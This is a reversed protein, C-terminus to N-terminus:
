IDAAGTGSQGSPTKSRGGSVRVRSESPIGGGMWLVVAVRGWGGWLERFSPLVPSLFYGLFFCSKNSISAELSGWLGGLIALFRESHEGLVRRLPRREAFAFFTTGLRERPSGLGSFRRKPEVTLAM